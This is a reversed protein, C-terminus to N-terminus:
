LSCLYTPASLTAGPSPVRAPGPLQPYTASAGLAPATTPSDSAGRRVRIHKKRPTAQARDLTYPIHGQRPCLVPSPDPLSFMKGTGKHGRSFDRGPFQLPPRVPGRCPSPPLAREARQEGPLDWAATQVLYMWTHGPELAQGLRIPAPTGGQLEWGDQFPKSHEWM